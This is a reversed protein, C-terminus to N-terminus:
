HYVLFMVMSLIGFLMIWKMQRSLSTFDSSISKAQLNIILKLSPIFLLGIAYLIFLWWGFQMVYLIAIFILSLLLVLFVSIIFKSVPIGWKIPLTKAGFRRDGPMDEVDKILERILTAIFAFVAYLITLRFLRIQYGSEMGFAASVNMKSLFMILITWAVLISITLNGLFFSKKLRASYFWLLAVTGLNAFVLYFQNKGAVAFVTLLVGAASFIFHWLIAWRRSVIKDIVLSGPKNVEDINVDFYDNIIYGGAAILISAFLIMVFHVDIIPLNTDAILPRYLCYEFLLQALAIFVLNPLRILKFFGTLLKM